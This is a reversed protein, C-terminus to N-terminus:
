LFNKSFGNKRKLRKGLQKKHKTFEHLLCLWASLFTLTSSLSTFFLHHTVFLSSLREGNIRNRYCSASSCRSTSFWLVLTSLLYYDGSGNLTRIQSLSECRFMSSCLPNKLTFLSLSFKLGLFILFVLSSRRAKL